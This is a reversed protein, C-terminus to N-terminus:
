TAILNISLCGPLRCLGTDGPEELLRGAEEGESCVIVYTGIHEKILYGSLETEIRHKKNEREFNQPGVGRCKALDNGPLPNFMLYFFLISLAIL